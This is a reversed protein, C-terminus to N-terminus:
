HRGNYNMKVHKPLPEYPPPFYVGNHELTNWKISEDGEANQQEWWRYIEEEDEEEKEKKKKGKKPSEDVSEEKKGKGKKAPKPTEVEESDEKKAKKAPTKRTAAKKLPKADDSEEDVDMEDEAKSKRKRRVPTKKKEPKEDIESEGDEDSLGKKVKKKPPQKAKGNTARKPKVLPKDDESDSDEPSTTAKGNGNVAKVPLTTAKVAGPMPVAASRAPTALPTDDESSSELIVKKRKLVRKDPSLPESKPRTSQSQPYFAHLHM